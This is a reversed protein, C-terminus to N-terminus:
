PEGFYIAVQAIKVPIVKQLTDVHWHCQFSENTETVVLLIHLQSCLPQKLPRDSLIREFKNILYTQSFFQTTRRIQGLLLMLLDLVENGATDDHIM